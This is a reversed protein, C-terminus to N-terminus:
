VQALGRVKEVVGAIREAADTIETETTERGLSLRLPAEDAGGRGMATLVHSPETAGSRCASGSSAAIGELDLSMLLLERDVGPISLSLLHPLRCADRGNVVSGPLREILSAELRDRLGALRLAEAHREGEALEAAVAFGMAVAIAETGARLGAEQGGGHVLPELDVGDRIYLAGIGQPGGIKHASIALLDVPVEDVRIHERGLAQVADSHFVVGAEKCLEAVESVPQLTGVENNAWMVSIIAPRALLAEEVSGLDLVGSRDVGLLMVSAGEAAAARTAGLVARHEIASSVVTGTASGSRRSARWRGLVALNDAETGSGTFVIERREAGLVAAVRERAEELRM